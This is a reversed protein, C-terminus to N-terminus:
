FRRIHGVLMSSVWRVEDLSTDIMTPSMGYGTPPEQERYTGVVGESLGEIVPVRTPHRHRTPVLLGMHYRSVSRGIHTGVIVSVEKPSNLLDHKISTPSRQVNQFVEETSM